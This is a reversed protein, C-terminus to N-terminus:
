RSLRTALTWRPWGLQQAAERNTKGELYCLVMPARYKEPLYGLEEDLVPRLERWVLDAAPEDVATAAGNAMPQEPRRRRGARAKMAARCAVRHLWGWLQDAPPISAAKRVLLLFTAQFADQADPGDALIRRCVRWVMPGHRRVLAAFATEDRQQVFSDLLQADT